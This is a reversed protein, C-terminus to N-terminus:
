RCLHTEGDTHIHTHTHIYTHIHWVIADAIRRRDEGFKACVVLVLFSIVLENSTFFRSVVEPKLYM